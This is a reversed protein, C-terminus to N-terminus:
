YLRTLFVLPMAYKKLLESEACCFVGSGDSEPTKQPQVIRLYNVAQLPISGRNGGHSPPTKVAQGVPRLWVSKYIRYWTPFSILCKKCFFNFIGSFGTNELMKWYPEYHLQPSDFGPGFACGSLIRGDCDNKQCERLWAGFSLSRVETAEYIKRRRLAKAASPRM